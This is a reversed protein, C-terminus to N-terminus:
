GASAPILCLFRMLSHGTNKFQHEKFGPVLIVHEPGIHHEISDYVFVGNGELVFVEHEHPHSHLPTHGGPKIEFMRMVFNSAGDSKSILVRIDTDKAGDLAVHKKAINSSKEIKM